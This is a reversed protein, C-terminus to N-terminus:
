GVGGVMLAPVVLWSWVVLGAVLAAVGSMILRDAVWGRTGIRARKAALRAARAQRRTTM